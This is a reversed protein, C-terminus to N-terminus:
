CLFYNDFFVLEGIKYGMDVLATVVLVANLSNGGVRFFNDALTLRGGGGGLVRSVVTLLDRAIEEEEASVGSLDVSLASEACYLIM